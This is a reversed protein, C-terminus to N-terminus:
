WRGEMYNHQREWYDDEDDEFEDYGLAEFDDYDPYDPGDEGSLYRELAEFGHDFTDSM